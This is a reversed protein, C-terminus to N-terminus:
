KGSTKNLVGLRRQALAYSTMRISFEYKPRSVKAYLAKAAEPLGYQEAIRGVSRGGRSKLYRM